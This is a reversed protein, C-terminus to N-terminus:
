EVYNEMQALFSTSAIRFHDRRILSPAFISRAVESKKDLALTLRSLSKRPLPRPSHEWWQLLAMAIRSEERRISIFLKHM